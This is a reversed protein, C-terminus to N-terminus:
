FGVGILAKLEKPADLKVEEKERGGKTFSQGCVRNLGDSGQKGKGKVKASYWTDFTMVRPRFTLETDGM